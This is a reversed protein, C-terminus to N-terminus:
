TVFQSLTGPSSSIGRLAAEIIEFHVGILGTEDWPPLKDDSDTAFYQTESKAKYFQTTPFAKIRIFDADADEVIQLAFFIAYKLNWFDTQM